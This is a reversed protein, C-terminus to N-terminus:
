KELVTVYEGCLSALLSRPQVSAVVSMMFPHYEGAAVQSMHIRSRRVSTQDARNAFWKLEPAVTNWMTSRVLGIASLAAKLSAPLRELKFHDEPHLFGIVQPNPVQM